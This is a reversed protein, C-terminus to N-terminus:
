TGRRPRRDRRQPEHYELLDESDEAPEYVCVRDRGAAKARYLAVDAAYFLTNSVIPNMWLDTGAVGVSITQAGAPTADASRSAVAGRIRESLFHAAATPTEPALIAFEEGGYRFVLDAGRTISELLGGLFALVADGTAHGHTDNVRKFHDLDVMLVSLPRGYRRSRELEVDITEDLNRRNRLGTLADYNALCWLEANRLELDATLRRIRLMAAVRLQLESPEVPKTLFDDAGVALGLRRASPDDLRTVFLVPLYGSARARLLRTLKFGDVTPMVADMLVLDTTRPEFVRLAETWSAAVCARHGLQEVTTALQRAADVNDDVVLIQGHADLQEPM